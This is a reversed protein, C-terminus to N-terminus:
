LYIQWYCRDVDGPRVLKQRSHCQFTRALLILCPDCMDQEDKALATQATMRTLEHLLMCVLDPLELLRLNVRERFLRCVEQKGAYEEPVGQDQSGIGKRHCRQGEARAFVPVGCISGEKKHLPNAHRSVTGVPLFFM